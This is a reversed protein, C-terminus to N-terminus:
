MTSNAQNKQLLEALCGDPSRQVTDHMLFGNIFCLQNCVASAQKYTKITLTVFTPHCCFSDKALFRKYVKKVVLFPADSGLLEDTLM